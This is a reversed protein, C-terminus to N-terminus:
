MRRPSRMRPYELIWADCIRQMAVGHYELIRASPSVDVKTSRGKVKKAGGARYMEGYAKEYGEDDYTFIDDNIYLIDEEMPAFSTRSADKCSDDSKLGIINSMRLANDYLNGTRADATIVLRLGRGPTVHALMVTPGAATEDLLWLHDNIFAKWYGWPDTLTPNEKVDYDCMVLGNLRAAEQVRWCAEPRPNGNKDPSQNPMIESMFVFGPLSRKKADYGRRNGADLLARCQQITTKM